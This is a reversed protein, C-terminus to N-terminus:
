YSGTIKLNAWDFYLEHWVEREYDYYRESFDRLEKQHERSVPPPETISDTRIHTSFGYSLVYKSLEAIQAPKLSGFEVDDGYKVKIGEILIGILVEFLIQSQKEETADPPACDELGLQVSGPAKPAQSFISKAIEDFNSEGGSM